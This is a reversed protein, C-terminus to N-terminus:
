YLLQILISVQFLLCVSIPQSRVNLIVIPHPNFRNQWRHSGHHCQRVNLIVIPHPNFRFPLYHHRQYRRVNLIVIPHPNFGVRFREREQCLMEECEIYCNSSSQFTWANASKTEGCAQCEIKYNFSSQFVVLM